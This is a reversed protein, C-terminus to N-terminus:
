TVMPVSIKETLATQIIEIYPVAMGARLLIM